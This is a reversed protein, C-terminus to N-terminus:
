QALEQLRSTDSGASDLGSLKFLSSMTMHIANYNKETSQVTMALILQMLVALRALCWGMIHESCVLKACVLMIEQMGTHTM